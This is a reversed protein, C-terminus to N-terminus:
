RQRALPPLRDMWPRARELQAALRYLTAEDGFRGVFHMGIPLGAANWCLPVSMAPQGTANIVPTWPIFEFVRDATQELIGAARLVGGARLTGMIELLRREKATPQLAGTLVPPQALTPTLLVDYREFFPAITRATRQLLRIARSFQPAPIAKGLLMLAWTPSEFDRPRGKRGLVEEADAIDGALEATIMTLFARAFAKGDFAPSAEEVRHGLGELFAATERLAAACDPHVAGGLWPRDTFAIRLPGPERRLEEVFPREQHPAAYPAGLDAGATADLIAASD